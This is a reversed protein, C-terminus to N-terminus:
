KLFSSKYSGKGAVVLTVSALIRNERNRRDDQISALVRDIAADIVKDLEEDDAEPMLTAADEDSILEVLDGFSEKYKRKCVVYFVVGLLSWAGVMGWEPLILSGGSGPICYMCVMFGSMIVAMTGFFKYAPVKYPRPMDPEKKRLIMFSVAVMCYALCCAFNGADSIWVLLQRGAFPALMTLVGILILANIPTKHKPHLKAFTKPIMYSEAMSYMARSGGILFSNWSTIIGCMGGVIVVKAMIKMGFATGMADATVLGTAEQSKIIAGSDLVLGVAIIVLAYFVVALIVSLILMKGIKKPPVNIEEAAQPIVDFGIFYFPSMAAVGLIAKINLGATNGVFMQGDLNDVTGNIVSAVILLIGAGGIICTLVTQLIAATKAGMINILMILFAVIIAVALWSAYVDFGAVTYLYGKLFGPWLYTIITPFACAEFCAVSVYGLVIAWTCIFSGTPGMARHSFVHEGGCQPMAATLEAYTLGVFFIMVGGLCFGLAAGLVGGKEIWNGTSVVWGWGIMAGFAIVLIDQASFVKNFESEKKNMDQGEQEHFVKKAVEEILEATGDVGLLSSDILMDRNHRDGRNSGTLALHRKHYRKDKETIFLKADEASFNHSKMVNEIRVDEPSYIFIRLIPKQEKLIYDASRGIIVCSERDALKRIITKQVHIARQTLDAYKSFSGRVDGEAGKGAITGGEEVKEMIDKPIGVEKIIKDVTDRDYFKIGLDKAVKRGIMNGKAGYECGITIVLHAM